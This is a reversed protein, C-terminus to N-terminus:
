SGTHCLFEDPWLVLQLLLEPKILLGSPSAPNALFVLDAGQPDLPGALTFNQAEATLQYTVPVRAAKLGNEYESFAPAVILAERPQLVRAALYILETSGNGM